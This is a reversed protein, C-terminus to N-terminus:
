DATQSKELKRLKKKLQYIERYLDDMDKQTPVALAKLLDQIVADRARVFDELAHLTESMAQVYETSKFLNMYHGELIKIWLRYYSNYDEALKGGEAMRTVEDQLVKFSKEMPLYFLYMFEIFATQFRNYNDLARNFKEQYFRTLGIQPIRFFQSFENEYIEAWARFTNRDIHEFSYAQTSKEIRGVRELWQQQIHFVGQWGAQVMKRTVDPLTHSLNNLAESAGPDQAVTSLTQWTKLVAELSEQARSQTDSESRPGSEPHKGATASWSQLM